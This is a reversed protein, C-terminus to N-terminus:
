NCPATEPNPSAPAAHGGCDAVARNKQLLCAVGMDLCSRPATARIQLGRLGPFLGQARLADILGALEPWERVLQRVEDLNEPTCAFVRSEMKEM